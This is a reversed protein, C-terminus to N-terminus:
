SDMVVSYSIFPNPNCMFLHVTLVTLDNRLAEMQAAIEEARVAAAETRRSAQAVQESLAQMMAFRDDFSDFRQLSVCM